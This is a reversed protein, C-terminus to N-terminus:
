CGVDIDSKRIERLLTIAASKVDEEPNQANTALQSFGEAILKIFLPSTKPSNSYEKIVEAVLQVAEGSRTRLAVKRLHYAITDVTEPLDFYRETAKIVSKVAGVSITYRMIDGLYDVLHYGLPSLRYLRGIVSRVEEDLYMRTVLNVLIANRTERGLNTLKYAIREAVEPLESYGEAAKAVSTVIEARGIEAAYGLQIVIKELVEPSYSKIVKIISRVAEDIKAKKAEKERLTDVIYIIKGRLHPPLEFLEKELEEM